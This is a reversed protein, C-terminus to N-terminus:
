LCTCNNNKKLTKPFLWLMFLQRSPFIASLLSPRKSPQKQCEQYKLTPKGAQQYTRSEQRATGGATGAAPWGPQRTGRSGWSISGLGPRAASGGPPASVGAAPAPENLGGRAWCLASCCRAQLRARCADTPKIIIKKKTLHIKMRANQVCKHSFISQGFLSDLFLSHM